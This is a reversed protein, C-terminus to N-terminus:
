ARGTELWRAWDERGHRRAAAVARDHPYTVCRLDVDWAGRTRTCLAYRLHPSGNEVAHAVPHDDTYAQLGVSGPNVVLRGDGLAVVRPVHSHGCVLLGHSHPHAGARAVISEQSALRVGGAVVEELWYTCDSTPTGHCVFVADDLTLTAPLARLWARHAETTHEFAFQDSPGGPRDACALLQREHNGAITPLDLAMLRDATAAPEIPGSLIDGANVVVDAAHAKADALAAELAWVNGHIDSLVAVRM